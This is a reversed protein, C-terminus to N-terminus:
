RLELHQLLLFDLLNQVCALRSRSPDLKSEAICIRRQPFNPEIQSHCGHALSLTTVELHLRLVAVPLSTGMGKHPPQQVLMVAPGGCLAAIRHM